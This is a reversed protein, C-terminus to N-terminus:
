ARVDKGLRGAVLYPHIKEGAPGKRESGREQTRL